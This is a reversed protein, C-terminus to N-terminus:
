YDPQVIEILIWAISKTPIPLIMRFNAQWKPALIITFSFLSSFTIVGGLKLVNYDLSHPTLYISADYILQTSYLVSFYGWM